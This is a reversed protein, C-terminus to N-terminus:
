RSRYMSPPDAAGQASCVRGVYQFPAPAGAADVCTAADIHEVFHVRCGLRRLGLLWNLRVWAEGGNRHKNAMAGSVLITPPSM